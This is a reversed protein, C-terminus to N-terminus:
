DGQKVSRPYTVVVETGEGPTSSIDLSAGALKTREDMIGMGHGKLGSAAFGRGDDRVRIVVQEPDFKLDVWVNTPYAHKAVNALAERTVQILQFKVQDALDGEEGTVSTQVPLGTDRSWQESISHLRTALPGDGEEDTGDLYDRVALYTREVISGIDAVDKDTIPSKGKSARQQALKIKLNLFALTQAVNDHVKRRLRQREVALSELRVRRQWNLNALFPLGVVLFCIASYLLVLVLYNQSLLGPLNSVRLVSPLHAGAVALSSISASAIAWNLNMLLSATLIPSLSYILFPSDLGGSILVLSISLATDEVLSLWLIVSRPRAPDFRWLIRYVNFFGVLLVVPGLGLPQEDSSNLTFVLGVGMAFSFFRFVALSQSVTSVYRELPRLRSRGDEGRLPDSHPGNSWVSAALRRVGEGAGHLPRTPSKIKM